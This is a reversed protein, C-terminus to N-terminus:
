TLRHRLNTRRVKKLYERQKNKGQMKPKTLTLSSLTQGFM